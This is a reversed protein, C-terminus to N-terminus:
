RLWQNKPIDFDQCAKEFNVLNADVQDSERSVLLFFPVRPKIDVPQQSPNGPNPNSQLRALELQIKAREIEAQVQLRHEELRREEMQVEHALRREEAQAQLRLKELEFRQSASMISSARDSQSDLNGEEEEGDGDVDVDVADPDPNGVLGQDTVSVQEGVATVEDSQMADCEDLLKALQERSKGSYEM